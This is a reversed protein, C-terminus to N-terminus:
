LEGVATKDSSLRLDTGWSSAKVFRTIFIGRGGNGM